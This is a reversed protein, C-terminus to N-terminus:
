HPKEKSLRNIDSILQDFGEEPLFAKAYGVMYTVASAMMAMNKIVSAIDKKDSMRDLVIQIIEDCLDHCENELTKM